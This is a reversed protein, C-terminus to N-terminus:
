SLLRVTARPEKRAAPKMQAPVHDHAAMEEAARPNEAEVRAMQHPMATTKTATDRQAVNRGPGNM